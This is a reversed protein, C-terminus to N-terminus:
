HLCEKVWSVIDFSEDVPESITRAGGVMDLIDSDTLEIMQTDENLEFNVNKM